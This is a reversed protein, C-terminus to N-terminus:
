RMLFTPSYDMHAATNVCGQLLNIDIKMGLNFLLLLDEVSMSQANRNGYDNQVRNLPLNVVPSKLFCIGYQDHTHGIAGAWASELTNPSKFPLDTLQQMVDEKRFITMDVSHPYKWDYVGDRFRWRFYHEGYPSGHPIQQQANMPYCYTLNLGLRLYFAYSKTEELADICAAIDVPDTSIMDDVAFFLYSHTCNKLCALTLEKFDAAPNASQKYYYPTDIIRKIEEYAADFRETSARYIVFIDGINTINKHISEMLALFQIPRDCSFIILDAKHALISPMLLSLILFLTCRIKM